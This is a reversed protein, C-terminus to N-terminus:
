GDARQQSDSGLLDIPVKSDAGPVERVARPVLYGPLMSRLAALLTDARENSVAFHAAGAVPDLMHLYYPLVGVRFLSESLTALTDADDNVSKLLVSQNLLTVGAARLQEVARGLEATVERPHNAHIVCVTQLRSGAFLDALGRSVRAPLVVPLRTHIRLRQVQPISEIGAVLAALRRDSLSLPDGGSLIVERLEEIERLLALAEQWQRLLSQEGYPFHRRFCYRCHVACAGTTVLLARGRYKQLIGGGRVAALDEVGRLRDLTEPWRRLLSQEGYPFHRRFCYRCHVACAGTTVLLARGSYKQLIGGGRVAALDEVPDSVFGAVTQLEAATPLVQALLPDSADGRRMLGVFYRPVRLAFAASAQRLAPLDAPSLDLLQLLELPDTVADALERQWPESEL